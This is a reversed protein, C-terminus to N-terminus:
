QFLHVKGCCELKNLHVQTHTYIYIYIYLGFICVLLVVKILIAWHAKMLITSNGSSDCLWKFDLLDSQQGELFASNSGSM